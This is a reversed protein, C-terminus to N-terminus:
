DTLEDHRDVNMNKRDGQPPRPEMARNSIKQCSRASPRGSLCLRPLWRSNAALDGCLLFCEVQKEPDDGDTKPDCQQEDDGDLSTYPQMPVVM